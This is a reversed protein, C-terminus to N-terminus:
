GEGAIPKREIKSYVDMWLATAGAVSAPMVVFNVIPVMMALMIAGGFGLSLLRRQALLQRQEPFSLSHNAMPYDAYQIAMLWAGFGVWLLSGIVNIGPIWLMVLIPLLRALTYVLKRLESRLSRSLEVFMSQWSFQSPTSGGGLHREVAEALLGNFPSSILNGILAFSFVPILMASVVYIPWLLFRLWDLWDPLWADLEGSMWEFGLFMLYLLVSFLMINITLPILVFRRIGPKTLLRLGRFLYSLGVAPNNNM